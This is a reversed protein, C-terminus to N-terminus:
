ISVIEADNGRLRSDLVNEGASHSSILYRRKANFIRGPTYTEPNGGERSHRPLFLSQRCMFTFNELHVANGRSPLNEVLALRQQIWTLITQVALGFLVGSLPARCRPGVLAIKNWKWITQASLYAHLSAVKEQIHGIFL